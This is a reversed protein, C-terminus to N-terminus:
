NGPEHCIDKKSFLYYLAVQPQINICIPCLKTISADMKGHFQGIEPVIKM